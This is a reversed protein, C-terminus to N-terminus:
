RRSFTQAPEEAELDSYIKLATAAACILGLSIIAYVLFPQLAFSLIYAGAVPSALLYGMEIILHLFDKKFNLYNIANKLLVMPIYLAAAGVFCAQMISWTGLNAVLGTNLSANSFFSSTNQLLTATSPGYTKILAYNVGGFVSNFASRNFIAPLHESLSSM